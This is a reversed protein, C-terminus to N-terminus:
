RAKATTWAAAPIEVIQQMAVAMKLTAVRDGYLCRFLTAKSIGASAALTDVTWDGRELVKWLLRAGENFRDGLTSRYRGIM